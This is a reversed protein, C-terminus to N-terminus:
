TVELHGGPQSRREAHRQSPSHAATEILRSIVDRKKRQVVHMAAGALGPWAWKKSGLQQGSHQIHAGVPRRTYQVKEGLSM